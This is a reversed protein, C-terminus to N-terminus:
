KAGNLADQSAAEFAARVAPVAAYLPDSFFGRRVRQTYWRERNGFLPHRLRGSNLAGLGSKRAAAQVRVGVRGRGVAAGASVKMERRLEAAYRDPLYRELHGTIERQAPRTAKEVSSQFTAAIEPESM